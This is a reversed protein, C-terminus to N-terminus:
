KFNNVICNVVESTCNIFSKMKPVLVPAEAAIQKAHAPGIEHIINNRLNRGSRTIKSSFISEIDSRSVSCGLSKSYDAILNWRPTNSKFVATKRKKTAVGYMIKALKECALYYFVFSAVGPMKKINLQKLARDIDEAARRYSGKTKPNISFSPGSPTDLPPM